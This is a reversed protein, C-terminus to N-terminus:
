EAPAPEAVTHPAMLTLRLLPPVLLLTLVASMALGGVVVSGLGRYLESGAGPFVVLPLMGFVSTLTSMFIPRIRNRTAEIIADNVSMADERLHYQAQHVLLIANNVVIGILIVFGLLTLMDLQQPQFMNLIALGAVGGAGAVPVSIMIVLPLIFSEFLVAMVLFVIILALLLNIKLANWTKTLQDAAGSLSLRVTPPIGEAVVPAMVKTRMIELATELPLSASPRVELTITRLRERHRVSVPGATLKVDALQSIPIIRGNPAVVPYAGIDQTRRNDDFADSGKLMLDIRDTGITIEKVRVGDNYADLSIALTQADVGADALRVRDPIARLEPAGLELGPQPRFQNGKDRPLHRGINQTLRLAVSLIDELHDGSVNLEIARGGGIGRGFLSRQNIFGFTGPESFIPRSLVPILETVRRPDKAGGGIFTTGRFSVFFFHRMAPPQSRDGNEEKEWLPRAIGEIKEAIKTTTPLNYGPPPLIIGFVLNRNGDPLYELKPLFTASGWIAVATIASVCMIGVLRSSVTMHTYRRMIWAFARGFHDIGPVPLVTLRAQKPGLLRSALAPIVTVAVILSLMVSVSIAVAIDRFLQGAELEMVLVPIFVMVTTLASVLIAGWVQRAGEYAAERAGRGQQRLRYINELVVIAADVVMGVAFAIGALSIVNLTRGLVSMAVFSAVISVPIALSVVLTARPSRLFLLLIAAALLGGIWINQIVLEIAGDIYVTEDYVQTLTLNEEALPGAALEALARKIGAMTSIVNAGTDRVANIAMAPEGKHRIRAVPEKYGFRVEAVDRVFVRGTAAREGINGTSLGGPSDTVGNAAGSRLVVNRVADLTDLEGEVRVVYRRKGEDVNGASVSVSERRLRDLVQPVTIRFKALREPDVLVQLERDVGGYVNVTAVGDVREIREQIVDKAFTGYHAMEKTNGAGRKLIIWAIPNDDSGSTKLTPENAEDPYGTVRDLRNAVLLLSRDMNTGVAFELTIRARGTESTSIMTELGDIGKLEEEQRNIIEREIEAPAAGGWNTEVQIVPKRVDPILQIPIRSLALAGFLVAILVAAIVAIPREIAFKIPDM